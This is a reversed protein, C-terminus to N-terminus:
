EASGEQSRKEWTPWDPLCRMLHPTLSTLIETADSKFPEMLSGNEEAVDGSKTLQVKCYYAYRDSLNFAMARVDYSTRALAGNAIFYYGGVLRRKPHKPNQFEITTLALDGRPM